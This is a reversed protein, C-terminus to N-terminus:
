IHKWTIRYIIRQVTSIALGYDRAIAAQTDGRESRRRIARINAPTLKSTGIAQGRAVREPFRRSPNADGFLLRRKASADRINDGQTGLRLHQPNCCAPTDCTHLVVISDPRLRRADDLTLGSSLQYAVRHVLRPKGNWHITCHGYQNSRAGLFLWCATPDSIAVRRWFAGPTADTNTKM